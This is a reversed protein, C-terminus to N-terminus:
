CCLTWGCILIKVRDAEARTNEELPKLMTQKWLVGQSSRLPPSPTWCHGLDWLLKVNYKAKNQVSASKKEHILLTSSLHEINTDLLASIASNHPSTHSCRLAHHLSLLSLLGIWLLENALELEIDLRIRAVNWTDIVPPCLSKPGPSRSPKECVNLCRGSVSSQLLLSSLEGFNLASKLAAQVLLFGYQSLPLFWFDDNDNIVLVNEGSQWLCMIPKHECNEFM